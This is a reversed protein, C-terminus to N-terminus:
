MNEIEYPSATTGEGTLSISSKLYFSPRVAHSYSANFYGFSGSFRLYWVYYNSGSTPTISWQSYESKFNYNDYKCPWENSTTNANNVPNYYYNSWVSTCLLNTSSEVYETINMLGIKGNWTYANQEEKEKALTKNTISYVGGVNWFHNDIYKNLNSLAAWNGDNLYKNLTSNTEVKGSIGNTLTTASANNYYSYHFKDDLLSGNYLTNNQNGWVNCGNSTTCYYGTETNQRATNNDWAYLGISENRVVKITGDSEYSIIRYLTNNTEDEKLFIRNDPDAGRYILRGPETESKYLGDGETVLKETPCNGKTTSIVKNNYIYSAYEDFQLCGSLGDKDLLVVGQSPEQGSIELGLNKLEGVTYSGKIGENSSDIALMSANYKQIADKYGYASDTISGVKAKNIVDLIIPVTIVAIIALIVIIALLEILTFGKTNKM